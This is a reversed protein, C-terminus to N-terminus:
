SSVVKAASLIYSVPYSRALYIGKRLLHTAALLISDLLWAMITLSLGLLRVRFIPWLLALASILPTGGVRTVKVYEFGTTRALHCLAADTFRWYDFPSGHERYIFPVAIILFGEPRVVRYAEKFFMWPDRLHELVWTSVIGDFAGDVFPWHSSLDAVVHPRSTMDINTAVFRVDPIRKLFVHESGSHQSGGAILIKQGNTSTMKGSLRELEIETLARTLTEGAWLKVLLQKTLM